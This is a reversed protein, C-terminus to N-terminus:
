EDTYQSGFITTALPAIPPPPPAIPLWHYLCLALELAIYEPSRGYDTPDFDAGPLAPIYLLDNDTLLILCVRLARRNDRLNEFGERLAARNVRLNEWSAMYAWLFIEFSSM